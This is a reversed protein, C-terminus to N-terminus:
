VSIQGIIKNEEFLCYTCDYINKQVHLLIKVNWLAWKRCRNTTDNKEYTIIKMAHERLDKYFREMCDKGKYSDLKNKTSGFSCNTFMWYDSPRDKSKKETHSNTKLQQLNIM